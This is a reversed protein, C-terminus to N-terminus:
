LMIPYQANNSTPKVRTHTERPKAFGLLNQNVHFRFQNSAKTVEQEKWACLVLCMTICSSEHFVCSSTYIQWCPYFVQQGPVLRLVFVTEFYVSQLVTCRQTQDFIFVEQIVYIHKTYSMLGCNLFRTIVALYGRKVM